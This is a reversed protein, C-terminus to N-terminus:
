YRKFNVVINIATAVPKGAHKAPVFRYQQVAKLAESDFDSRYSRAIKLQRPMGAADVILGVVVMAELPEKAHKAEEPFHALPMKLPVPPTVDKGVKYVHDIAAESADEGASVTAGANVSKSQSSSQSAEIAISARSTAASVALVILTALATLGYKTLPNIRRNLSNLIMIRKELINADFMGIPQLPTARSATAVMSALHLLSRAYTRPAVVRETAMRDCIMERSQAIQAKILWTCPHFAALLSITEYCVNKLFDRREIHGFEHAIAALFEPAACKSAFDPPVLLISRRLGLVVPGSVEISSVIRPKNISFAQLCNNLVQQHAPPLELPSASQLLRATRRLSWFFKAAFYSFSAVYLFAIARIVTSSLTFVGDAKIAADAGAVQALLLFGAAGTSHFRALFSSELLPVAPLVIASILTLVCLIHEASPSSKRLLRALLCGSAAILAIQWAANIVYSALLTSSIM